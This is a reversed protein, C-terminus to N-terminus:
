DLRRRRQSAVLQPVTASTVTDVVPVARLNPINRYRGSPLKFPTFGQYWSVNVINRLTITMSATALIAAIWAQWAALIDAQFASTWQSPSLLSGQVGCRLYTRPRGGRYHRGIVHLVQACVDGALEDGPLTGAVSETYTQELGTDSSLDTLEILQLKENIGTIPAMSSGWSSSISAALTNFDAVSPPGGTYSLYVRSGAYQSPSLLNQWSMRIVSGPSPLPPM